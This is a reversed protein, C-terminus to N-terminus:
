ARVMSGCLWGLSHLQRISCASSQAVLPSPRGTIAGGPSLSGAGALVSGAGQAPAAHGLCTGVVTGLSSGLLTGLQIWPPWPRSWPNPSHCCRCLLSSVLGSSVKALLGPPQTSVTALQQLLGQTLSLSQKLGDNEAVLNHMRKESDTVGQFWSREGRSEGWSAEPEESLFSPLPWLLGGGKAM